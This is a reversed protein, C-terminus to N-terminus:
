RKAPVERTAGIVAHRKIKMAGKSVKYLIVDREATWPNRTGLFTHWKIWTTGM